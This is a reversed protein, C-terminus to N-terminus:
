INVTFRAGYQRPAGLRAMQDGASTLINNNIIYTEDLANKVYAEFKFRDSAYGGTMNVLTYSDMKRTNEEDAYSSGTYTGVLNVFFGSAHVYNLGIVGTTEPAFAFENGSFDGQSSVFEEFETHSIAGGVYVSLADTLQYDFSAEFGYLESEGANVVIQFATNGTGPEPISVQQDTWDGYYFNANFTGRGDFLVARHALEYNWLEESDFQNIGSLLTLESGGSRYSKKVFFTTSVDDNWHYTLGAHPLLNDFDTSTRQLPSDDSLGALTANILVITGDLGFPIGLAPDPLIVTSSATVSSGVEQEENDYRAGFSVTWRDSLDIEWESFAAWIENDVDTLGQSNLDYYQPYLGIGSVLLDGLGPSLFNLQFILDLNLLSTNNRKASIDNYYVGSSGRVRDSTYNFRFEQSYNTDEGDRELLGGGNNIDLASLDTDDIRYREGDQYASISTLTWQDSINYDIKLSALDADLSHESPADHTSVRDDEDFGALLVRSEGYSNDLHQLSLVLRLDDRPTW